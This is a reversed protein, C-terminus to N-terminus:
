LFFPVCLRYIDICVCLGDLDFLLPMTGRPTAKDTKKLVPKSNIQAIIFNIYYQKNEQIEEPNPSYLFVGPPM